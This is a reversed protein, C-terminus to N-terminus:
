KVATYLSAYPVASTSGYKRLKELLAAKQATTLGTSASGSASSGASAMLSSAASAVKAAASSTASSASGSSTSESSAGSKSSSGSHGSSGTGLLAAVDETSLGAAELVAASPTKGESLLQMAWNYYYDREANSQDQEMAAINQWYNLRNSYDDYDYSRETEYASQAYDRETLWRNYEDQWKSYEDTYADNLLAYETNLRDGEADYADRALQYLELGKDNLGKLYENYAQQGATSAYSNGYGGTQAASRGMSDEMAQRGGQIYQQRYQQYLPDSAMDYSFSERGLIKNMIGQLQTYYQSQYAAPQKAIISNLEAMAESVTQSPQYGNTVLSGLTQKTADSVGPLSILASADAGSTGTTGSGTAGTTGTTGTGVTTGTATSGTGPTVASQDQAAASVQEVSDTTSAQQELLKEENTNAM